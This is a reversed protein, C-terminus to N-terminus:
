DIEDEYQTNADEEDDSDRGRTTRRQGERLGKKLKLPFAAGRDILGKILNTSPHVQDFDKANVVNFVDSVVISLMPVISGPELVIPDMKVLRFELRYQGARRVSLDPFVFFTGPFKKYAEPDRATPMNSSSVQIFRMTPSPPPSPRTMPHRPANEPDPDDACFFSSSVNTGLLLRTVKKDNATGTGGNGGDSQSAVTSMDERPDQASILRAHAVWNSAQLFRMDKQLDFDDILLQLV